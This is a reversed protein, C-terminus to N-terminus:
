FSVMAQIYMQSANVSFSNYSGHTSPIAWDMKFSFLTGGYLRMGVGVSSLTSSSTESPRPSTNIAGGFDTFLAFKVTDGTKQNFIQTEPFFPSTSLELSTFYGSDGNAKAPNVGRVSGEGGLQMREASFLRDPSYQFSGRAILYNYGPLKQIRMADLNFKNFMNDAGLYSPGPNTAGNKTGGLLEGLGRTYGLGIFNRGLFRDTSEFSIGTIIKRIEDKDQTSGLINDYLSIYEGGFRVNLSKDLKKMLPHTVYLGVVHAKGNLDLLALSDIGGAAYVTNSYYAGVQTGIGGVPIIYEARGYSLRNLDFADLGVIGNLRILDGSTISNGINLSASLRNRSTSKVGFNDYSVSGFIPHKDSVSAIIDTTGPKKGAKLTTKVSLSPYENLLLLEKELTEEKLSPDSRVKELHKEIFSSSYSRNGTVSITGVKGEVVKILVTGFSNVTRYGTNNRTMVAGDFISQSPVYANIILFGKERYHATITDAIHIIEDLTLEKGEALIVDSMLEKEDLLTNGELRIKKVFIKKDSLHKENAPQMTEKEVVPPTKEHLEIIKDSKEFQQLVGGASDASFATSCVLSVIFLSLPLVSIFFRPQMYKM